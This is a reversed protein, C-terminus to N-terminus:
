PTWFRGLNAPCPRTAPKSEFAPTAKELPLPNTIPQDLFVGTQSSAGSVNWTSTYGALRLLM